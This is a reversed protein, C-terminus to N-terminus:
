MAMPTTYLPVSKTPSAVLSPRLSAADAYQVSTIVTGTASSVAARVPRGASDYSYTSAGDPATKQLLNGGADLTRNETGDATSGGTLRLMGAISAFTINGSIGAGSITTSGSGYSLQVNRTTDPHTVSTARGMADYAWTAIRAGTEDVVGTLGNKFRLDDYIYRRVYGDPWTASVLNNNADYGYQTLGGSPDTMRYLRGQSDYELRITLLDYNPRGSAAHQDIKILRGAGDYSRTRTFGTHTVEALLIGQGSYSEVTGTLMDTLAWGVSNQLLALGTFSSTKWQGNSLVFSVPQGNARYAIVKPSTGTAGSVNLQRQWNSIWVPGLATATKLFPLSLYSRTFTLPIADGSRFDNETLAVKGNAPYVPDAVPCSDDPGAPTSCWQDILALDNRCAYTDLGGPHQENRRAQM